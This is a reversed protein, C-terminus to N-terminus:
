SSKGSGARKWSNLRLWDEPRLLCIEALTNAHTGPPWSMIRGTSLTAGLPIGGGISKSMCVIDARVNFNEMAMFKGTRFGGSQIEDAIM